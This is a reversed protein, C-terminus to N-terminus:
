DRSRSRKAILWPFRRSPDVDEFMYDYHRALLEKVIPMTSKGDIMHTEVYLKDVSDWNKFDQFISVEAGECDFVGVNWEFPLDNIGLVEVEIHSKWEFVDHNYLSGSGYQTNFQQRQRSEGAVAAMYCRINPIKRTNRVLWKYCNPAPEFSYVLKAYKPLEKSNGGVNAGLELVVDNKSLEKAFTLSIPFDPQIMSKPRLAIKLSSWYDLGPLITWAVERM